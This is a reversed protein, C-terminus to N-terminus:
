YYHNTLFQLHFILQYQSLKGVHGLEKRNPFLALLLHPLGGDAVVHGYSTLLYVKFLTQRASNM